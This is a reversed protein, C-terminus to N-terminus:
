LENKVYGKIIEKIEEHSVKKISNHWKPRAQTTQKSTNVSYKDKNEYWQGDRCVFISYWGYSWVVYCGDNEIGAALNSAKFPQQMEVCVRANKNAIQKM